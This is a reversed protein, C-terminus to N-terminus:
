KVVPLLTMIPLIEISILGRKSIDDPILYPYIILNAFLNMGSVLEQLVDNGLHVAECYSRLVV